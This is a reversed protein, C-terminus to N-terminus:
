FRFPQVNFLYSLISFIFIFLAAISSITKCYQPWFFLSLFFNAAVAISTTFFFFAKPLESGQIKKLKYKVTQIERLYGNHLHLNQMCVHIYM